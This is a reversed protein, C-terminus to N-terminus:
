LLSDVTVTCVLVVHNCLDLYFHRDSREDTKKDYCLMFFRDANLNVAYLLEHAKYIPRWLQGASGHSAGVAPMVVAGVNRGDNVLTGLLEAQNRLTSQSIPSMLSWNMIGLMTVNSAGCVVRGDVLWSRVSDVAQWNAMASGWVFFQFTCRSPMGAELLTAAEARCKNHRTRLWAQEKFFRETKRDSCATVWAIWSNMDAQVGDMFM